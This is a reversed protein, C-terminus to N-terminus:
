KYFKYRVWTKIYTIIGSYPELTETIINSMTYNNTAIVKTQIHYQLYCENMQTIAYRTMRGKTCIIKEINHIKKVRM